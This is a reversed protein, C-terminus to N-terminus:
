TQFTTVWDLRVLDEPMTRTHHMLALLGHLALRTDGRGVRACLEDRLEQLDWPHPLKKDDDPWIGYQTPQDPGNAKLTVIVERPGCRGVLCDGKMWEPLFVPDIRGPRVFGRMYTKGQYADKAISITIRNALEDASTARVENLSIGSNDLAQVLARIVTARGVHGPIGAAKAETGKQGLVRWISPELYVTYQRRGEPAPAGGETAPM